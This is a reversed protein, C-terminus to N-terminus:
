DSKAPILKKHAHGSAQRSWMNGPLLLSQCYPNDWRVLAAPSYDQCEGVSGGDSCHRLVGCPVETKLAHKPGPPLSADKSEHKIVQWSM